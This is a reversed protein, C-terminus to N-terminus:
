KFVTNWDDLRKSTLYADNFIWNSLEETSLDQFSQDIESVLIYNMSVNLWSVYDEVLIELNLQCIKACSLADDASTSRVVRSWGHWIDAVQWAQRCDWLGLHGLCTDWVWATLFVEIFNNPRFAVYRWLHHNSLM